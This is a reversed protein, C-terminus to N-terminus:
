QPEEMRVISVGGIDDSHRINEKIDRRSLARMRRQLFVGEVSQFDVLRQAGWILSGHKDEINATYTKIGDTFVSVSDVRVEPTDAQEFVLVNRCDELIRKRLDPQSPVFREYERYAGFQDFYASNRQDDLHYSLYYPAGSPYDVCRISNEGNLKAVVEGDGWGIVKFTTKGEFTVAVLVWLTADLASNELGLIRAVNAMNSTKNPCPGMLGTYLHSHLQEAPHTFFEPYLNLYHRIIDDMMHVLIRAGTDTHKSGSCGDSVIGWVVRGFEPKNWEGHVAFDQCVQHSSGIEFHSDVHFM